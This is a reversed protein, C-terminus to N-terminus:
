KKGYAGLIDSNNRKQTSNRVLGFQNIIAKHLADIISMFVSVAFNNFFFVTPNSTLEWTM